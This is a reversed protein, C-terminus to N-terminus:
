ADVLCDAHKLKLIVRVQQGGGVDLHHHRSLGCSAGASYRVHLVQEGFVHLSSPKLVACLFDVARNVPLYLLEVASLKAGVLNVELPETQRNLAYLREHAMVQERSILPEIDEGSRMMEALPRLESAAQAIANDVDGESLKGFLRKAHSWLRSLLNLRASDSAVPKRKTQDLQYSVAEDYQDKGFEQAEVNDSSSVMFVVDPNGHNSAIGDHDFEMNYDMRSATKFGLTKQYIAELNQSKSAYADLHTAGHEKVFDKIAYLFGKRDRPNLSFVSILNGDPEIAFGCLGDDSLFCKCDDYSDHLDVLEGNELYNRNVQFIDHFLTGNVQRINFEVGTKPSILSRSGVSSSAGGSLLRGYIRGLHKKFPDGDRGQLRGRHYASIEEPLLGLSEAQIRRFEDTYENREITFISNKNRNRTAGSLLNEGKLMAALLKGEAEEKMLQAQPTRRNRYRELYSDYEDGLIRRVVDDTMLKDLRAKLARDRLGAIVLHSIEEPMDNLGREGKSVRIATRINEANREALLPDFFSDSAPDDAFEVNFGAKQVLKILTTNLKRRSENRDAAAINLPTNDRVDAIYKGNRTRKVVAIKRKATGNFESARSMAAECSDYERAKGDSDILGASVAGSMDESTQSIYSGLDLIRSVEEVTIEGNADKEADKFESQFLETRTFAWIKKAAGRDHLKRKLGAFLLSDEGNPAKPTLTCYGAM